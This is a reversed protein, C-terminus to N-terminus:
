ALIRNGRLGGSEPTDVEVPTIYNRTTFFAENLPGLQTTM